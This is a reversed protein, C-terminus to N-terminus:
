SIPFVLLLLVIFLLSLVIIFSYCRFSFPIGLMFLLSISLHPFLSPKHSPFLYLFSEIEQSKDMGAQLQPCVIFM